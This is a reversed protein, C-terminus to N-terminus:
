PQEIYVEEEVTANLFSTAVDFQLIELGRAAAISILIRITEYRVVPAFTM